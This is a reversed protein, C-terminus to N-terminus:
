CFRCGFMHDQRLRGAHGGESIITKRLKSKIRRRNARKDLKMADMHIGLFYIKSYNNKAKYM